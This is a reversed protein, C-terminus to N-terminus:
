KHLASEIIVAAREPMSYLDANKSFTLANDVWKQRKDSTLIHMLQQNFTDQNFPSSAVLGADAERIYHAYGCVDTCLVPLGAVLAELLVTGTNENYAPHVLADAGQLLSPVDSMGPFFTVRDQVGLKKAQHKFLRPNDKGVVFLKVKKKLAEPLSAVGVLARDLGKTIFGSGLLVLLLEDSALSHNKRFIVRMNLADNTRQRDRAIGPPLLHMRSSATAYYQSFLAQQVDSILLIETHEHASFVAREYSSFHKYRYSYNYFQSRLTQAKHEYCTDAAYYVDLGPMKNFGVVLDVPKQHLSSQVWAYFKENRRCASLAKPRRIHVDFGEPIDGEWSMTYVIIYHGKAQLCEAIRLFDRQLGGFPFYKYLIFALQM